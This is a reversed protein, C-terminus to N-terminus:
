ITSCTGSSRATSWSSPARWSSWRPVPTSVTALRRSKSGVEGFVTLGHERGLRIQYQRQEKTLPVYNDSTELIDFGVRKVEDFLRPLSEVGELAYIHEVFGGGIWTLIHHEKYLAFKAKPYDEDYLRATGIPIKVLDVFPGTVRLMGTVRELDMGWDIMMMRGDSRSQWDAMSAPSATKAGPIFASSSRM